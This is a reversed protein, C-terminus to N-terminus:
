QKKAMKLIEEPDDTQVSFDGRLYKIATIENHIEEPTRIGLRRIAELPPCWGQIAHQLLFFGVIGTLTFWGPKKRALGLVLSTTILTAANTELVRETNWESNLEELRQTLVEYSAGKYKEICSITQQKIKENIESKTHRQVRKTTQPVLKMEM